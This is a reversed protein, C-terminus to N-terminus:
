KQDDKNKAHSRKHNAFVRKDNATFDCNPSDCKLKHKQFEENKGVQDKMYNAMLTSELFAIKEPHVDSNHQDLLKQSGYEKKCSECKWADKPAGGLLGACNVVLTDNNLIPYDFLLADTFLAQNHLSLYLSQQKLEVRMLDVLYQVKTCTAIHLVKKDLRLDNCQLHLRLVKQEHILHRYNQPLREDNSIHVFNCCDCEVHKSRINKLCSIQRRLNLRLKETRKEKKEKRNKRNKKKSNKRNRKKMKKKKEQSKGNHKNFSEGEESLDFNISGFMGYGEIGFSYGEGKVEVSTPSSITVEPTKEVCVEPYKTCPTFSAQQAKKKQKELKEQAQQPKERKPDKPRKFHHLGPRPKPLHNPESFFFDPDAVPHPLSWLNDAKSCKKKTRKRPPSKPPSQIPASPANKPKPPRFTVDQATVCNHVFISHNKQPRVRPKVKPVSVQPTFTFCGTSRPLPPFESNLLHFSSDIPKLSDIMKMKGASTLHLGDASLFPLWAQIPCSVFVPRAQNAHCPCISFIDQFLSIADNTRSIWDNSGSEPFRNIVSQVQSVQRTPIPSFVLNCYPYVQCFSHILNRISDAVEKAKEFHSHSTNRNFDNAGSVLFVNQFQYKQMLPHILGKPGIIENTTKGPFWEVFLRDIGHSNMLSSRVNDPCDRLLSDSCLLSAM